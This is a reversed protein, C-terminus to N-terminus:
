APAANGPGSSTSHDPDTMPFTSIATIMEASTRKGSPRGGPHANAMRIHATMAKIAMGNVATDASASWGIRTGSGYVPRCAPSRGREIGFGNATRPGTPSRIRKAAKTRLLRAAITSMAGSASATRNRRLRPTSRSCSLHSVYVATMVKPNISVPNRMGGPGTLVRTSVAVMEPILRSGTAIPMAIM